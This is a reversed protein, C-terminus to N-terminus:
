RVEECLRECEMQVNKWFLKRSGRIGSSIMHMLCICNTLPETNNNESESSILRPHIFPPLSGQRQMMRPYSKLTYLTLNATRQAGTSVKPRRILSRITTTPQKPISIQSSLIDQPVQLTMNTSPIWHHVSPSLGSPPHQVTGINSRLDLIDAFDIQPNDWDLYDGGIDAFAPDLIVPANDVIIDSDYSSQQSNEASPSCAVLSPVMTRRGMPENDGQRIKPGTSRPTSAPYQCQIAKAICMSCGPRKTDCRAKGQACSICSRPRTTPVAGRRSRCYYGHIKLTSAIVSDVCVPICV